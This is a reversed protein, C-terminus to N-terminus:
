PKAALKTKTGAPIFRLLYTRLAEERNLDEISKDPLRKYEELAEEFSPKERYRGLAECAPIAKSQKVTL